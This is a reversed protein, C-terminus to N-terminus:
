KKDKKMDADISTKISCGKFGDFRLALEEGIAAAEEDSCNKKTMESGVAGFIDDDSCTGNSMVDDIVKDVFAKASFEGCSAASETVEDVNYICDVGNNDLASGVISEIKDVKTNDFVEININIIRRM